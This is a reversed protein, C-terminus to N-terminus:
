LYLKVARIQLFKANRIKIEQIVCTIQTIRAFNIVQYLIM